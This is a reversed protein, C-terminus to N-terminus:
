LTLTATPRRQSCESDSFYLKFDNLQEYTRMGKRIEVVTDQYLTACYVKQASLSESPVEHSPKGQSGSPSGEMTSPDLAVPVRQVREKIGFQIPRQIRLEYGGGDMLDNVSFAGNEPIKGSRVM